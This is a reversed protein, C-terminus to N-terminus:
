APQPFESPVVHAINRAPDNNTMSKLTCFKLFDGGGAGREGEWIFEKRHQVIDAFYQKAEKSTSTGLGKYYKVRWGRMGSPGLGERWAEYEPITYFTLNQAGKQVQSLSLLYPNCPSNFMANPLMEIPTKSQVLFGGFLYEIRDCFHIM